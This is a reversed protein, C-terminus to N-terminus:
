VDDDNPEEKDYKAKAPAISTPMKLFRKTKPGLFMDAEFNAFESSIVAGFAPFGMNGNADYGVLIRVKKNLYDKDFLKIAAKTFDELSDLDMEAFKAADDPRMFAGYLHGMRQLSNELYDPNSKSNFMDFIIHAFKETNDTAGVFEMRVSGKDADGDKLSFTPAGALYVDVGTETPKLSRQPVFSGVKAM